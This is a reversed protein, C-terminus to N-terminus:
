NYYKVLKPKGSNLLIEGVLVGHPTLNHSTAIFHVSVRVILRLDPIM